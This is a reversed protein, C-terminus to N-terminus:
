HSVIFHDFPLCLRATWEANHDALPAAILKEGQWVAPTSLLAQRRLPLARASPIAAFGQEGLAAVTLGSGPGAGGSVLWRGDWLVAEGPQDPAPVPGQVAALERTLRAGGAGDPQLRVGGLTRGEGRRLARAAETLAEFRPRYRAAGIWQVAAALVRGPTDSRALDLVEPALVLDGAEARVHRAAFAAASDRLSAQARAMHAATEILRERSLGLPALADLLRRAKVRDFRPDDNSPDEAWVLSRDRLWGRLDSRSVELLPRLFLGTGDHDRMGCLGDVGSGRALRMLVTEAQDDSTHGLLIAGLRESDAWGTLLKRRADRAAAQLNGQGDWGQWLLTRHPVGLDAAVRAVLAAEDAAEARLGHNVTAVHLGIGRGACWARALHLLAMSDGGGSVAVGIRLPPSNAFAADAYREFAVQPDVSM